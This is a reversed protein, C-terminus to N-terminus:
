DGQKFIQFNTVPVNYFFVIPRVRDIRWWLCLDAPYKTNAPQYEQECFIPYLFHFPLQSLFSM